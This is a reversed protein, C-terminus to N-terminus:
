PETLPEIEILRWKSAEQVYILMFSISNFEKGGERASFECTVVSIKDFGQDRMATSLKEQDILTQGARLGNFLTSRLEWGEKQCIGRIKDMQALFKKADDTTDALPRVAALRTPTATPAIFAQTMGLPTLFYAAIASGIGIVM